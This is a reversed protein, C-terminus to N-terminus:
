REGGGKDAVSTVCASVNPMEVMQSLTPTMYPIFQNRRSPYQSKIGLDM